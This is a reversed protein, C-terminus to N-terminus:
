IDSEWADPAENDEAELQKHLWKSAFLRLLFGLMEITLVVDCTIGYTWGDKGKKNTYQKRVLTGFCLIYDGKEARALTDLAVGDGYAECRIFRKTRYKIYLEVHRVNGSRETPNQVVRGWALAYSRCVKKPDSEDDIWEKGTFFGGM